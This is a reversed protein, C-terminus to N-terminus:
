NAAGGDDEDVLVSVSSAAQNEEQAQAQAESSTADGHLAILDRADLNCLEIHDDPSLRFGFLLIHWLHDIFPLLAAPSGDQIIANEVVDRRFADILEFKPHDHEWKLQHRGISDDSKFQNYSCFLPEGLYLGEGPAHQLPVDRKPDTLGNVIAQASEINPVRSTRAAHAAVAVMKRIQHLMFSQGIVTLRLWHMNQEPYEKLPVSFDDASLSIMYRMASDHTSQIKATFNHFNKTGVFAQLIHNLQEISAASARYSALEHALCQKEEQTLSWTDAVHIGGLKAAIIQQRFALIRAQDRGTIRSFLAILEDLSMLFCHPLMYVYRRRDCSRKADFGKTVRVADFVRIDQPLEANIQTIAKEIDDDELELKVTVVHRAASVGKDTRAARTWGVKKLDDINEQAVVGARRLAAQMEGEVTRLEPQSAQLQFGFM